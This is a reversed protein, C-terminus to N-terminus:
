VTAMAVHMHAGIGQYLIPKHDTTDSSTDGELEYM